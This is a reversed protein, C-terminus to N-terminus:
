LLDAGCNPCKSRINSHWEGDWSARWFTQFLSSHCQPCTVRGRCWINFPLWVIFTLVMAVWVLQNQHGRNELWDSGAVFALLMTAGMAILVAALLGVFSIISYFAISRQTQTM